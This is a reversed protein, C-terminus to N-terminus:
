FGPSVVRDGPSDILTFPGEHDWDEPWSITYWNGEDDYWGWQRGSERYEWVSGSDDRYKRSTDADVLSDVKVQTTIGYEALVERIIRKVTEEFQYQDIM